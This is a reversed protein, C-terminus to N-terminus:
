RYPITRLVFSTLERVIGACVVSKARKQGNGESGGDVPSVWTPKAGERSVRDPLAPNGTGPPQRISPRRRPGALRSKMERVLVPREERDWESAPGSAVSDFVALSRERFANVRFKYGSQGFDGFIELTRNERTRRFPAGPHFGAPASPEACPHFRPERRSSSGPGRPAAPAQSPKAQSSPPSPPVSSWAVPQRPCHLKQLLRHGPRPRPLTMQPILQQGTRRGTPKERPVKEIVLVSDYFHLSNATRTFGNASLQSPLTSQWANVRDIMQKTYEVFTGRRRM